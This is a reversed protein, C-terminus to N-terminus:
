VTVGAAALADRITKAAEDRSILLRAGSEAVAQELTGQRQLLFRWVHYGLRYRDNPEVTQISAVSSYAKKELTDVPAEAVSAPAKTTM